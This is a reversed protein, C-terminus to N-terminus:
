KIKKLPPHENRENSVNRKCFRQLIDAFLKLVTIDCRDTEREGEGQLYLVVCTYLYDEVIEVHPPREM